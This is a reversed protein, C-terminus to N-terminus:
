QRWRNINKPQRWFQFSSVMKILWGISWDFLKNHSEMWDNMLSLQRLLRLFRWTRARKGPNRFIIKSNEVWLIIRSVGSIRFFFVRGCKGSSLKTEGRCCLCRLVASISPYQCSFAWTNGTSDRLTGPSNSASRGGDRLDANGAPGNTANSRDPWWPYRPEKAVPSPRLRLYPCSISPNQWRNRSNITQNFIIIQKHQQNNSQM